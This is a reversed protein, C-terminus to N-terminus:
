LGNNEIDMLERHDLVCQAVAHGLHDYAAKLRDRDDTVRALERVLNDCKECEAMLKEGLDIVARNEPKM